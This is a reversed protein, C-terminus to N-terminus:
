GLNITGWSDWSWCWFDGTVICSSISKRREGDEDKRNQMDPQGSAKGLIVVDM